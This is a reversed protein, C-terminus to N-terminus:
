TNILNKQSSTSNSLSYYGHSMEYPIKRRDLVIKMNSQVVLRTSTQTLPTIGRTDVIIDVSICATIVILIILLTQIKVSIRLIESSNFVIQISPESFRM